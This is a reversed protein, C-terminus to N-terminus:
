YLLKLEKLDFEKHLEDELQLILKGTESVQKIIGTFREGSPSEFTSAKDKRFLKSEYEAKLSEFAGSVIREVYKYFKQILLNLVEELDFYRGTELAISTANPAKSFHVQNVNLGVGIIVGTLGNRIISEILVGCIKKRGALIDNPWKVSLQQLGLAELAEFVALSTAMTIYFSKDIPLAEVRKFVSLTLNKGPQAEWYAGRQGRGSRQEIAWVLVDGEPSLEKTYSRLYSNTSTTANLKVIKM